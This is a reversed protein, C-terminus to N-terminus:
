LHPIEVLYKASRPAASGRAAEAGPQSSAPRDGCHEVDSWLDGDPLVSPLFMLNCWGVNSVRWNPWFSGRSSKYFSIDVVVTDLLKLFSLINCWVTNWFLRLLTSYPGSYNRGFFLQTPIAAQVLFYRGSDFVGTMWIDDRRAGSFAGSSALREKWDRRSAQALDKRKSRRANRTWSRTASRPIACSFNMTGQHLGPQSTEDAVCLAWPAKRQVCLTQWWGSDREPRPTAFSIQSTVFILVRQPKSIEVHKFSLQQVRCAVKSIFLGFKWEFEFYNCYNTVFYNLYRM